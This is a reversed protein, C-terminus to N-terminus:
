RGELRRSWDEVERKELRKEFMLRWNEALYPLAVLQELVKLDLSKEYILETVRSLPWDKGPREILVLRDGKEVAGPELVRYYWGTMGSKQVWKAMTKTQFRENLKWCPQRGQSLQVVGSGLKFIDGLCVDAEVLGCTSINEGFAGALPRAVGADDVTKARVFDLAVQGAGNEAFMQEFRLYHDLPYHNIAKDVGGHVTLDGQADCILGLENFSVSGIVPKKDIGSPAGKKGLPQVEGALVTNVIVDIM